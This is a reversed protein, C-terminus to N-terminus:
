GAIKAPRRPKRLDSDKFGYLLKLKQSLFISFWSELDALNDFVDYEALDKM